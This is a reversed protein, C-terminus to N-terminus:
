HCVGSGSTLVVGLTDRVEWRYSAPELTLYLLSIKRAIRVESQPHPPSVFTTWGTSGGGGAVLERIGLLTDLVGTPKMPRMVEVHHEHGNIILEAGGAYLADWFPRVAKTGAITGSTFLPKHWVALQCLRPNALLDAKIWAAQEAFLIQSNLFLLRWAGHDIAYYGKGRIGARGSDVGVGLFYDFYGTATTDVKYEHNGPTAYLRDKVPGWSADFNAYEAATGADGANDGATFVLATSEQAVVRGTAEDKYFQSLAAHMDGAGIASVTATSDYVAIRRPVRVLLQDPWRADAPQTLHDSSCGLVLALCAIWWRRQM